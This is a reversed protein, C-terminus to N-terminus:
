AGVSDPEGAVDQEPLLAGQRQSDLARVIERLRERDGVRQASWRLDLIAVEISRSYLPAFRSYGHCGKRKYLPPGFASAASRSGHSIPTPKAARAGSSLAASSMLRASASRGM